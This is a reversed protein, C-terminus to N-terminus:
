GPLREHIGDYEKRRTRTIERARVLLDLGEWNNM